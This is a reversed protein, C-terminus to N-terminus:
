KWEFDVVLSLHDSPFHKSPLSYGNMAKIQEESFLSLLQTPKISPGDQDNSDKLYLVADVAAKVQPTYITYYKNNATLPGEVTVGPSPQVSNLYPTYSSFYNHKTLLATLKSGFDLEENLDGCLITPISLQKFGLMEKTEKIKFLLYTLQYERIMQAGAEWWLHCNAVCVTKEEQEDRLFLIQGVNCTNMLHANTKDKLKQAIENFDVGVEHVLVLRDRRFMVCCGDKKDGARQQYYGEYGLKSLSPFFFDRYHDVEQLCIIDANMSSIEQM